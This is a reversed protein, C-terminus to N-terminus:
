YDIAYSLRVQFTMYVPTLDLATPLIYVRVDAGILVERSLLYDISVRAHAAFDASVADTNEDVSPLVDVGLGFFPVVQLIDVYYLAEVGALGFHYPEGGNFPPHVAWAAYAGIGWTDEFGITASIGATPGHDPAHTSPPRPALAPALAWGATVGLTIQDDYAAAESAFLSSALVVTVAGLSARRVRRGHCARAARVLPRVRERPPDM